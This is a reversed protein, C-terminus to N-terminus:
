IKQRKQIMEKKNVFIRQINMKREFPLEPLREEKWIFPSTGLARHFSLNISLTAMQVHERCKNKNFEALKRLKNMFTKNVREVAGTTQHHYPSGTTHQVNERNLFDAVEKATFEKGCDTLICEPKGHKEFIQRKI